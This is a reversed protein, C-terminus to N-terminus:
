SRCLTNQQILSIEEKHESIVDDEGEGKRETEKWETPLYHHDSYHNNKKVEM